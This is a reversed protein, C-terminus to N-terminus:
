GPLKVLENAESEEIEAGDLLERVEHRNLHLLQALQGEGYMTM